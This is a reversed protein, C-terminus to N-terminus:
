DQLDQGINRIEKKAFNAFKAIFKRKLEKEQNRGKGKIM